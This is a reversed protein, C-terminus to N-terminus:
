CEPSDICLNFDSLLLISPSISSLATIFESLDPLFSPNPKSPRYIISIILLKSGPPKFALHEFSPAAHISLPTPLLDQHYVAAIGGGRGESRPNDLYSYEVPTNQNPEFYDLTKQWTENLWSSLNSTQSLNM